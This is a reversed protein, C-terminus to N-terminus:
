AGAAVAEGYNTVPAIAGTLKAKEFLSALSPISAEEVLSDLNDTPVSVAGGCKPCRDEDTDFNCNECHKM